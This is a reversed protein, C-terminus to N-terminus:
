GHSRQALRVAQPVSSCCPCSHARSGLLFAHIYVHTAVANPFPLFLVTGVSGSSLLAALGQCRACGPRAKMGVCHQSSLLAAVRPASLHVCQACLQQWSAQGSSRPLRCPQLHHPSAQPPHLLVAATRQGGLATRRSKPFCNLPKSIVKIAKM